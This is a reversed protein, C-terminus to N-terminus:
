LVDAFGKRTKQFFLFGLLCVMAAIATYVGLALWDPLRGWLLVERAQEMPVTLPNLIIWPRIWDPLSERQFFLPSLFMLAMVATGLFQGIDRLYTGLSAFFWGFGLVLLAFPVVVLPLALVTWPVGGMLFYEFVMLVVVSVAGHFLAVGLVVPVLVELPFVIRKVYNANAIILGPARNVVEFVQFVILGAFLIIAFEAMSHGEEVRGPVRWRAQFVGGFVLTYIALMFLPNILSWAIGLVSGRYRGAIERRVLSLTLPILRAAMHAKGAVAM